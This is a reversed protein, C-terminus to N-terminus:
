LSLLFEALADLSQESLHSTSGHKDEKNYATLAERLNRAQGHHLYPPTRWLEVLTPTDFEAARDLSGRTGVDYTKLDTYLPPPHCKACETERSEFIAKGRQATASLQGNPLLYPSREPQMARVFAAVAELEEQEPEWFLIHRFGAEEAAETTARVGRAMMPPTKHSLLLSRTNKPNGIGDNLLDWNLGDARGDPHCTACSLWHQFCYTADHFISEGRRVPDLEPSLGLSVVTSTARTGTDVLAVGGSYYLAAALQTGDPSVAIGRPCKGEIPIRALAGARYLAALDNSLADAGSQESEASLSAAAYGRDGPDGEGARERPEGQVLKHIPPLELKGLQHVGALSVWLTKGDPSVATGWPDAAGESVHDLLVTALRKRLALDIITVANTNIWGRELQTTPLMARGLTHAAYAWKGDPSIAVERILAGNPPLRVDAAVTGADMDILSVSASTAPDSAPTAPLLNGVVALAEDPTVALFYPTHLGGIRRKEKGSTLDLVSVTHTASNAALLLGRHPAVAVGVPRPGVGFRRTVKGAVPDVEAVSGAGCEAVFLRKGDPGWAVGAPQGRLAIESRVQATEVDILVLAGATHDSVALTKGDPAYAVDLPSRYPPKPAGAPEPRAVLQQVAEDAEGVQVLQDQQLESPSKRSARPAEAVVVLVVIGAIGAIRKATM